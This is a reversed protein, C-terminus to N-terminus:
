LTVEPLNFGMSDFINQVIENYPIFVPRSDVGMEAEPTNMKDTGMLLEYPIGIRRFSERQLGNLTAFVGTHDEPSKKQELLQVVALYVLDATKFGNFKVAREGIRFNTEVAVCKDINIVKEAYYKRFEEASFNGREILADVTYLGTEDEKNSLGKAGTLTAGHVVSQEEPRTDVLALFTTNVEEEATIDKVEPFYGAEHNRIINAYKSEPQIWVAVVGPETIQNKVESVLENQLGQLEEHSLDYNPAISYQNAEDGVPLKNDIETM